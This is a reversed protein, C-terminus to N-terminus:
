SGALSKLAKALAESTYPKALVVADALRTDPVGDILHCGTALHSQLALEIGTKGPLGLSQAYRALHGGLRRMLAGM